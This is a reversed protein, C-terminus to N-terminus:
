GGQRIVEGRALKKQWGPPLEGGRAVKKQLGKPLTKSKTKTEVSYAGLVRQEEISFEVGGKKGSVLSDDMKMKARNVNEPEAMEHKAAKEKAKNKGKGKHHDALAPSALGTILTLILLKRATM